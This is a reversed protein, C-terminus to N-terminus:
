YPLTLHMRRPPIKYWPWGKTLAPPSIQILVRQFNAEARLALNAAGRQFTLSSGPKTRTGEPFIILNSGQNLSDRCDDILKQPDANNLYGASTLAGRTFINKWLSQKVVCNANPILSILVVVDILCPHNAIVIKGKINALTDIKSTTVKSVGMCYMLGIFYKFAIHVLYRSAKQRTQEDRYKLRYIPLWFVTMLIGSIGFITFCFATAFFRWIISIQTM